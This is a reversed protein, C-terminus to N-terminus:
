LNTLTIGPEALIGERLEKAHLGLNMIYRYIYVYVCMCAAVGKVGWSMRMRRKLFPYFAALFAGPLM